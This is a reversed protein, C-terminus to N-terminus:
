GLARQRSLATAMWAPAQGAATLLINFEADPLTTRLKALADELGTPGIAGLARLAEGARRRAFSLEWKRAHRLQIVRNGLHMMRSRGSTLYIEQVPVQTTLGLRNAAVAGSSVIIEGTQESLQDILAQTSPAVVGFRTDVPLVYLGRGVRMLVSRKVLRSLSQDIAARSGLHLLANARLLTGEPMLRLASTIQTTLREM